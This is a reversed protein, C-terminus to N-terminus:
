ADPDAGIADLAARAAEQEARKKSTGTGRGLIEGDCAVTADFYREHDPGFGETEYEPLRGDLALAEQLRTKFDLVGPAAARESLLEDWHGLVFGRAAELGGDLFIA